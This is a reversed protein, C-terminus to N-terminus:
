AFLIISYLCLYLIM